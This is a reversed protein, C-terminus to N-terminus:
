ASAARMVQLARPLDTEPQPIGGEISVRGTYGCEQLASFFPQFDCAEAGPALRSPITAVHVHRLYNGNAILDALPDSDKLLHYGDVLLRLSPHKVEAVLEASEGVGTLINCEARNLPEVVVTVAHAAAIPALMRCFEVLQRWAQEHAFGDPVQRAGGSGFVITDVGATRARKFATTVYRELAAMDADPGTIKLQAPVFCNLVPCPLPAAKVLELATQFASEDELPKLFAPVSWEFYDFGAVAVTEAMDPGCCVGFKM